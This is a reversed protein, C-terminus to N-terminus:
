SKKAQTKAPAKLGDIQNNVWGIWGKQEPSLRGQGDLKRLIDLCERYLPEPDDAVDAVRTLSVVLDTQAQANGPDSEALRRAIDLSEGYATRAADRNKADLQMDGIKNLSM